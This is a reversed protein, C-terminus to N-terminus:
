LERYKRRLAAVISEVQRVAEGVQKRAQSIKRQVLVDAFVNDMFMDAFALFGGTDLDLNACLTVDRLEREFREMDRRAQEMCDSAGGLKMHKVLSTFTGGGLMDFLGWNGASDLQRQADRLSTLAHEGADIAQALEMRMEHDTM